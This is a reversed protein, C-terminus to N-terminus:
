RCWPHLDAIDRRPGVRWQGAVPLRLRRRRQPGGPLEARDGCPIGLGSADIGLELNTKALPGGSFTVVYPDAGSVDGPGGSVTVSGGGESITSLGNLAAEVEAASADFDLQATSQGKFTLAFSGSTARIRVESVEDAFPKDDEGSAVVNYGFARIFAGASSFQSIRNNGRDAVYLDGTTTNVALGAPNSLKGAGAGSEGISSQYSIEAQAVGAGIALSAAACALALSATKISARM